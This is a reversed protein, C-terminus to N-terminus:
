HPSLVEGLSFFIWFGGVLVAFGFGLLFPWSREGKKFAIINTTIASIAVVFEVIASSFGMPIPFPMEGYNNMFFAFISPMNILLIGWIFTFISLGFAWQGIKTKPIEWRRKSNKNM